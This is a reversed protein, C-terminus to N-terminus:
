VKVFNEQSLVKDCFERDMVPAKDKQESQNKMIFNSTTKIFSMYDWKGKVAGLIKERYSDLTTELMRHLALTEEEQKIQKELDKISDFWRYQQNLEPDNQAAKKSKDQLTQYLEDFSPEQIPEPAQTRQGNRL